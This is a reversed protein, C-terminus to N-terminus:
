LFNFIILTKFLLLLIYNPSLIIYVIIQSTLNNIRIQQTSALWNLIRLMLFPPQLNYDLLLVPLLKGRVWNSPFKRWEIKFFDIGQGGRSFGLYIDKLLFQLIINLFNPNYM